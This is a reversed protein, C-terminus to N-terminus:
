SEQQHSRVGVEAEEPDGRASIHGGESVAAFVRDPVRIARDRHMEHGGRRGRRIQIAFRHRSFLLCLGILITFVIRRLM